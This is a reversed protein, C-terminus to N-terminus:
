NELESYQRQAQRGKVVVMITSIIAFLFFVTALASFAITISSRQRLTSQVFGFDNDFKSNDINLVESVDYLPILQQGLNDLGPFPLSGSGQLNVFVTLAKQQKIMFGTTPDIMTEFLDNQLVGDKFPKSDVNIKSTLTMDCGVCGQKSAVLDINFAPGISLTAVPTNTLIDGKGSTTLREKFRRTVM